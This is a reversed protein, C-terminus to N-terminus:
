THPEVTGADGDLVIRQGSRLRETAVGTGLVAPIHYERAVISSHRLPGGVDTVVGAALAFLPTWAPTTIRAVLIDGPQLQGSEEPGRLVRATGVAWGPSAGIGRIVNGESQRTKTPMWMSMATGPASAGERLPLSAPPAVRRQAMWRASREAVVDRRKAPPRGADLAIAAERLEASTLWHVDDAREIAGAATLRRGLEAALRRLAPWGLGADALADERLPAYEQAPRLLVQFLLRRPNGLTTLMLRTAQERRASATRQREYPDAGQGSLFFKLTELVPAPHDAPVEKAFDLDYITHGFRALHDLLRRRFQRWDREVVDAPAPGDLAAAIEGSPAQALYAALRDQGRVWTALDHLSQEARIPTSAFGLLFTLAPPDGPRKIVRDYATAFLAETLYAAMLVGTQIVLYHRAAAAVIERMGRLLQDAPAAKLDTTDWRAVVRAYAPRAEGEWRPRSRRLMRALRPLLKLLSLNQAATLHVDIHAYAYGNITTLMDDPIAFAIGLRRGLEAMAANWEPLALTAFLPSLPDPLLEIVSGRLYIGGSDPLTWDAPTAVKGGVM